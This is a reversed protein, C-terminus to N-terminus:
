ILPGRGNRGTRLDSLLNLWRYRLAKPSIFETIAQGTRVNEGPIQFIVKSLFRHHYFSSDIITIPATELREGGDGLLKTSAPYKVGLGDRRFVQEQIVGNVRSLKGDRVLFLETDPKADETEAYCCFVATLDVFHARGWHWEKVTNALCRSDLNHDHYGTGRFTRVDVVRGASNRVKLKGSVDSRPAVMNWRRSSGAAAASTQLLDAEISLWEFEAELYRGRSLPLNVSVSYGSGYPASDYHFGSGGIICRPENESAAFDYGPYENVARYIQRGGAFYTFSVAPFRSSAAGDDTSPHALNYRPSYIFNDQFVIMVAESGDDSLADFYWWEYAQPPKGSHWADDSISSAFAFREGVVASRM